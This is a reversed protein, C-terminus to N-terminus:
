TKEESNFDVLDLLRLVYDLTDSSAMLNCMKWNNANKKESERNYENLCDASIEILLNRFDSFSLKYDNKRLLYAIKDHIM